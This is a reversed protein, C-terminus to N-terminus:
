TIQYKFMKRFDTSFIRTEKFDLLFISVKCSSGYVNENMDRENRGLILFKQSLNTSFILMCMKHESDKKKEEFIM